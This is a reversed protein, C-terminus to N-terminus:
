SLYRPYIKSFGWIRSLKLFLFLLNCVDDVLTVTPL